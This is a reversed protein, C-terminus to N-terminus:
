RVNKISEYRGTRASKIAAIVSDYEEFAARKAFIAESAALQYKETNSELEAVKNKYESVRLAIKDLTRKNESEPSMDGNLKAIYENYYQQQWEYHAVERKTDAIKKLHVDYAMSKNKARSLAKYKEKRADAVKADEEKRIVSLETAAIRAAPANESKLKELKEREKKAVKNMDPFIILFIFFFIVMSVGGTIVTKLLQVLVPVTVNWNWATAFPQIIGWIANVFISILVWGILYWIAQIVPNGNSRFTVNRQLPFNICQATFVAIEFAIFNGLGGAIVENSANRQIPENFIAYFLQYGAPDKLGPIEVAPWVFATNWTGQFAYPLFAMVIFQWITVLNSFVFMVVFQSLLKSGKPHRDSFGNWWGKLARGIRQWFALFSVKSLPKVEQAIEEYSLMTVETAPEATAAAPVQEGVPVDKKNAM